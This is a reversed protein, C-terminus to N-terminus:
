LIALLAWPRTPTGVPLAMGVGSENGWRFSDVVFCLLRSSPVLGGTSCPTTAAGHSSFPSASPPSCCFALCCIVSYSVYYVIMTIVYKNNIGMSASLNMNIILTFVVIIIYVPITNNFPEFPLINSSHYLSVEIKKNKKSRRLKNWNKNEGKM